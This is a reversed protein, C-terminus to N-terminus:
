DKPPLVEAMNGMMQQEAPSYINRFEESNMRARREEEPLTSLHAMEQRIMSKRDDPLRQFEQLSRRVQNQRQPPLNHLLELQTFLKEKAQPPMTQYQQLRQLIQRQTQPPLQSIANQREEPTMKLFRQVAVDGPHLESATNGRIEAAAGAQKAARQEKQAQQRAQNEAKREAQREQVLIARAGQRIPRAVAPVCVGAALWM